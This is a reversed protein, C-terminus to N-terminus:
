NRLNRRVVATAEAATLRGDKNIDFQSNVGYGDSGRTFLVEDPGAPHGAFITTYVAELSGLKGRHHEFYKEVYPLQETATMRSLQEQSVGLGAQTNKMFQILGYATSRPNDARPNFGSEYSMATLLHEPKTGLRQAVGEVGRLFEPTVNPNGQVHAIKNYDFGDPSTYGSGHQITAPHDQRYADYAAQTNRGWTGDTGKTDYGAQTLRQQLETVTAGRSGRGNQAALEDVRKDTAAGSRGALAAGGLGLAAAGGAVSAAPAISRGDGSSGEGGGTPGGLGSDGLSGSDPTAGGIGDLTNKSTYSSLGGGSDSGQDGASELGGGVAGTGGIPGGGISSSGLGASGSSSAGTGTGDLGTAPGGGSRADVGGGHHGVLQADAGGAGTSEPDTTSGIESSDGTPTSGSTSPVGGQTFQGVQDSTAWSGSSTPSAGAGAPSFADASAAPPSGPSSFSSGTDSTTGPAAEPVLTGEWVGIPQTPMSGGPTSYAIAARPAAAVQSGSNSVDDQEQANQMLVKAMLGLAQSIRQLWPVVTGELYEAYAASAGGTFFSAARLAMILAQLYHIVQDTKEKGEQCEQGAERLADTDAGMFAM